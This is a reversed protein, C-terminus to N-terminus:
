KNAFLSWDIKYDHSLNGDKVFQIIEPSREFWHEVYGAPAQRTYVGAGLHQFGWATVYNIQNQTAKM